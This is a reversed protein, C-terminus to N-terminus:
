FFAWCIGMFIGDYGMIYIYQIYITGDLFFSLYNMMLKSESKSGKQDKRLNHSFQISAFIDGNIGADKGHYDRMVGMFDWIIGM